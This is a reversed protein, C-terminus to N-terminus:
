CVVTCNGATCDICTWNGEATCAYVTTGCTWGCTDACTAGWATCQVDSGECPNEDCTHVSGGGMVRRADSQGLVRLTEVNLTLKKKRM